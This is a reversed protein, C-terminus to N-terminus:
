ISSAPLQIHFVLYFLQQSYANQKTQFLHFYRCQYEARQNWVNFSELSQKISDASFSNPIKGNSFGPLNTIKQLM